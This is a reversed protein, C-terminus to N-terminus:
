QGYEYRIIAEEYLTAKQYKPDLLEEGYRQRKKKNRYPETLPVILGCSAGVAGGAIM